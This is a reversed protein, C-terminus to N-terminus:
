LSKCMMTRKLSLIYYVVRPITNFVVTLLLTYESVKLGTNGELLDLWHDVEKGVDDSCVVM